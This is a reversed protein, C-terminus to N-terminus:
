LMCAVVGYESLTRGHGNMSVETDPIRRLLM